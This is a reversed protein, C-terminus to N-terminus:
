GRERRALLRERVTKMDIGNPLTARVREAQQDRECLYADVEDRHRLYYAIAAYIDSLKLSPFSDLIQEATAGDQFAGIVTELTVRTGGVRVVGDADVALPAPDTDVRFHM